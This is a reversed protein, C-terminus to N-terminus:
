CESPTFGGLEQYKRVTSVLGAIENDKIALAMRLDRLEKNERAQARLVGDKVGLDIAVATLWRAIALPVDDTFMSTMVKGWRAREFAACARTMYIQRVEPM